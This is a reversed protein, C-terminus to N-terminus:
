TVDEQVTIGKGSTVANGSFYQYTIKYDTRAQYVALELKGIGLDQSRFFELGLLASM